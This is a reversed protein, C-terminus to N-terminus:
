ILLYNNYWWFGCVTREKDPQDDAFTDLSSSLIYENDSKYTIDSTTWLHDETIQNCKYKRWKLYFVELTIYMCPMIKNLHCHTMKDMEIWTQFFDLGSFYMGMIM